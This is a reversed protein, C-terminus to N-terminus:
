WVSTSCRSSTTSSGWAASTSTPRSSTATCWAARTRTPWRTACRGCCSSPATPRCRGSSASWRERPRAGGAAGDRLLLHRRRDHRLRLGPDHAALQAGRHGASRARLAAARYARGSRQARRASRAAGAQDGRRAGAAPAARALGRGHRRARAARRAPLQGLEQAERLRRGLRHLVSRRCCRSSPARTTRCRAPRDGAAAVAGSRGHLYAVLM